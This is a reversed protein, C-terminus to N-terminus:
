AVGFFKTYNHYIYAVLVSGLKLQPEDLSYLDRCKDFVPDLSVHPSRFFGQGAPSNLVSRAAAIRDVIFLSSPIVWADAITEFTGTLSLSPTYYYLGLYDDLVSIAQTETAPAPLITVTETVGTRSYHVSVDTATSSNITWRHLGLMPIAEPKNDYVVAYEFVVDSGVYSGAAQVVPEKVTHRTEQSVPRTIAGFASIMIALEPCELIQMYTQAMVDAGTIHSAPFLAKRMAAAAGTVEVPKYDPSIQFLADLGMEDASRNLLLSRALNIM